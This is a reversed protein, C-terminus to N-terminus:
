ATLARSSRTAGTTDRRTTVADFTAWYGADNTGMWHDWYNFCLSYNSGTGSHHLNHHTATNFWRGLPHRLFGAPFAEYGLHALLGFAFFYLGVAGFALPHLPLGLPLLLFFANGLFTEIPHHAFTALPTPNTVRHHIHHAHRFFWSTHLLRHQWYFWADFAVIGIAISAFFYLWGREAVDFYMATEGRAIWAYLTVTAMGSCLANSMSWLIEHGIEHRRPFAEQIRWHALRERWVVHLLVVLGGALAFYRLLFGLCYRIYGGLDPAFYPSAEM